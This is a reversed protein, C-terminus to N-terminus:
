PKWKKIKKSGYTDGLMDDVFDKGVRMTSASATMIAVPIVIAAVPVPITLLGSVVASGAGIINSSIASLATSAMTSVATAVGTANNMAGLWIAGSIAATAKVATKTSIGKKPRYRENGAPTYTNNAYQFRRVGKRQGKIGSHYINYM